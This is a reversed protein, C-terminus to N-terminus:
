EVSDREEVRPGVVRGVPREVNVGAAVGHRLHQATVGAVDRASVSRSHCIVVGCHGIICATSYPTVRSWSIARCLDFWMCTAYAGSAAAALRANALLAAINRSIPSSTAM